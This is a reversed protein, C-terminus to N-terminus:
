YLHYKTYPVHLEVVIIIPYKLVGSEGLSVDNMFHKCVESYYQVM